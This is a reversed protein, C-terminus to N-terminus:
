HLVEDHNTSLAWNQWTGVNNELWYMLFTQDIECLLWSLM